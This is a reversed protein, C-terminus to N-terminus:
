VAEEVLLSERREAFDDFAHRRDVLQVTVALLVHGILAADDVFAVGIEVLFVRLEVEDLLCGDFRGLGLLFLMRYGSIAVDASIMKRPGDPAPCNGVCSRCGAPEASRGATM